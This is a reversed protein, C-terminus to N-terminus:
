GFAILIVGAAMLVAGILRERTHDEHFFIRGFIVGFVMSLRKISIYYVAPILSLGTYHLAISGGSIAGLWALNKFRPRLIESSQALAIPILAIAMITVTYFASLLPPAYRFTFKALVITLSAVFAGFLALWSGPEGLINGFGSLFREEGFRWGLFFSGPIVLLVGILGLRSPLEHLVMFGLPILFISTFASLPAIISLPAIQVSKTALFAVLIELPVAIFFIILWYNLPPIEWRSFITVLVALIPSAVAMRAFTIFNPNLGSLKKQFVELFGLSLANIIGVFIGM